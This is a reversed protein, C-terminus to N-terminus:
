HRNYHDMLRIIDEEDSPNNPDSHNWIEAVLTYKVMPSGLLRHRELVDFEVIDGPNADILESETDDKSRKYSGHTLFMWRESRRNHYQWSLEEGSSVVLLKPSLELKNGNEDFLVIEKDDFFERAFEEADENNLRCFGGWPRQDDYSHLNYNSNEVFNLIESFLESKDRFDRNNIGVINERFESM